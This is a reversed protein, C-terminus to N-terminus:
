ITGARTRWARNDPDNLWRKFAKGEPDRVEDIVGTRVLEYYIGTPIRAVHTSFDNFREGHRENYNEKNNKVIDTVDQQTELVGSGDAHEHAIRRIAQEPTENFRRSVSM